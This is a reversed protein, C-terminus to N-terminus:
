RLQGWVRPLDNHTNMKCWFLERRDVGAALCCLPDDIGSCVYGVDEKALSLIFHNAVNQLFFLPLAGNM